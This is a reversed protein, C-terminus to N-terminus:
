RGMDRQATQTQLYTATHADFDLAPRVIQHRAAPEAIQPLIRDLDLARRLASDDTTVDGLRALAADDQVAAVAFRERRASEVGDIVMDVVEAPCDTSVPRGDLEVADATEDRVVSDVIRRMGGNLAAAVVMNDFVILDIADTQFRSVR